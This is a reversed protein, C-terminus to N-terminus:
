RLFVLEIAQSIVKGLQEVREEIDPPTVFMPGFEPELLERILAYQEEAELSGLYRGAGKTGAGDELAKVMAGVTDQVIAAAGVVTPVGVALVPVGLSERTLGNRHNGVGSGPRIGTDSIQITCGLRRVSRAALADIAIVLEPRTENVVGKLIEATEMGTQAMVGPAIGSISAMDHKKLYGEGFEGEYHRTVQLHQLVRPGLSDPTVYLNGLGVVLIRKEKRSKEDMGALKGLQVALADALREPYGEEKQELGRAEITLYTGKEKGMARAGRDNLIKVETIQIQKGQEQWERLSVGQIEGGDGPFREKEEVALDTRLEMDSARRETGPAGARKRSRERIDPGSSQGKGSGVPTLCKGSRVPKSNVALCEKWARRVDRKVM